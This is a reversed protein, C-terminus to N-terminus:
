ITDLKFGSVVTKDSLTIRTKILKFYKGLDTAKATRTIGLKQYIGSLISKLEKLSYRDGTKFVKFIESKLSDDKSDNKWSGLLNGEQYGKSKCGSTGFYDYFQRFRPNTIRHNIIDMIQSNDKYLDVFECYMRMKEHFFGTMYFHNDLFDSAIKDNVTEYQKEFFGNENLSRTVSIKDQYDKQSVEWARENAIEVLYNYVPQNTTKSIGIFDCMYNSTKIDNRLKRLFSQKQELTLGSYGSLINETERRKTEQSKRFEESTLQTEGKRKIRYFLNIINKFPNTDKRQRGAIQPLDLSIDLALCSINPDAFVYTSANDSYLDIGMYVASTCFTFPKNTETELPVQGVQFGDVGPTYKLDRSLKDLKRKTEDSKSCLINVEQPTLKNKKIVKSIDSISNFYFVAEQSYVINGSSDLSVPFKGAKYNKVIENCESILSSVLKRQVTVNETYGSNSWNMEYFPLFKFDDLKDLYKELMPTASLYLVSQCSQLSGVFDLEVESKFYSDLFISQFEDAVFYFQDLIGLDQLAKVVYHCSDYTVMIKCPQGFVNFCNDVHNKVKDIFSKSDQYNSVKNEIYRINLDNKHKRSKNELLMKRPSCLVINKENTLCYETYGCGTVGKDVICHGQPFVYEKWESIYRVGYPVNISIKDM